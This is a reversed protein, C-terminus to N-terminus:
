YGHNGGFHDEEFAKAADEQDLTISVAEVSKPEEPEVPEPKILMPAVVILADGAYSFLAEDNVDDDDVVTSVLGRADLSAKIENAIVARAAGQPGNITIRFM